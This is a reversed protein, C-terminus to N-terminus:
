PTCACALRGEARKMTFLAPHRGRRENTALARLLGVNDSIRDVNAEIRATAAAAKRGATLAGQRAKLM